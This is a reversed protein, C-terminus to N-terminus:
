LTAPPLAFGPLLTSFIRGEADLPNRHYLKDEGLVYVDAPGNLYTPTVREQPENLIVMLDPERAPQEDSIYMTFRAMILEGLNKFNLYLSLILTLFILLEQHIINHPGIVLAKGVLWEAHQGDYARLYDKFSLYPPMVPKDTM